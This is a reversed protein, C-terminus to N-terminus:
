TITAVLRHDLLDTLGSTVSEAGFGCLLELQGPPGVGIVSMGAAHGAAVGAASHTFTVAEGPRVGLRRCAALLLDPAPRSRLSEALIVDADVREEVLTALGALELMPLTSTSASVVARKCGAHGTAELFRRAGPLATVGRLRLGHALADAKRRALGHATESQPTDTPRGEPLRIGRSDLFSHIGELRPRGDIFAAFDAHQDFPIFHRATKESLRLLFEDFVEAWAQAHLVGSDTLVGDLDFLCAKVTPALGLMHNTVPVPSLWPAPHVGASRAVQALLSAVEQREQALNRRRQECEADPLTRGAAALARQAADLSRQWCAALTDLDLRPRPPATVDRERTEGPVVWGRAPHPEDGNRNSVAASRSIPSAIMMKLKQVHAAQTM